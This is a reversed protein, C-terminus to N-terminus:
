KMQMILIVLVIVIVIVVVVVISVAKATAVAAVVVVSSIVSVDDATNIALQQLVFPDSILFINYVSFGFDVPAPSFTVMLSRQNCYVSAAAIWYCTHNADIESFFVCRAHHHM